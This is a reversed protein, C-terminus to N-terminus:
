VISAILLVKGSPFTSSHLNEELKSGIRSRMGRLSVFIRIWTTSFSYPLLCNDKRVLLGKFTVEPDTLCRGIAMLSSTLIGETSIPGLFHQMNPTFRFPVTEASALIPAYNHMGSRLFTLLPDPHKVIRFAM